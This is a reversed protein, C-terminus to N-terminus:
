NYLMLECHSLRVVEKATILLEESSMFRKDDSAGSLKVLYMLYEINGKPGTIPSYDLAAVAFGCSAALGACEALVEFHTSEDRVVGNKGIKGRGAEFQPKVLVVASGGEELCDFIRPLILKISIFSVDCSAFAPTREFWTPEMFRANHREM